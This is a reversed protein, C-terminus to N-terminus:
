AESGEHCDCECDVPVDAEADWADGICPLHKGDRCDPSVRALRKRESVLLAALWRDLARIDETTPTWNPEYDSM